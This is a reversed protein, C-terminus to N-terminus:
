KCKYYLEWRLHFLQYWSQSRFIKHVNQSFAETRM